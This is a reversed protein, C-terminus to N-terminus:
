EQISLVCVTNVGKGEENVRGERLPGGRLTVQKVNRDKM